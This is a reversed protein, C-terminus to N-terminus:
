TRAYPTSTHHPHHPAVGIARRKATFREALCREACERASRDAALVDDLTALTRNESRALVAQILQPIEPFDIDGTLFREVAVENAANLTAPASGGAELAEYALKLCPFRATDPADFNLARARALELFAVGAEIRDPYALAHAIPTRM